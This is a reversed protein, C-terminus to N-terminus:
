NGNIVEELILHGDSLSFDAAVNGIWDYQLHGDSNIEFFMYGSQAAHYEAHEASTAADEASKSANQESIAAADESHEAAIASLSANTESLAANEESKKANVEAAMADERYGRVEEIFQEFQSPTVPETEDGEYLALKSVIVARCQETTLRDTLANGEAISGVLNVKVADKRNLVEHPVICYGNLDLITSIVSQGNTWVARVSDFGSWNEGLTFTAEIYDITGMAVRPPEIISILTQNDASFSLSIKDM